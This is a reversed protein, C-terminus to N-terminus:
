GNKFIICGPPFNSLPGSCCPNGSFVHIFILWLDKTAMVAGLIYPHIMYGGLLWNDAPNQQQILGAVLM